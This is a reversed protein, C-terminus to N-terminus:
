ANMCEDFYTNIFHFSFFFSFFFLSNIDISMIGNPPFSADTRGDVWRTMMKQNSDSQQKPTKPFPFLAKENMQIIQGWGMGRRGNGLVNEFKIPTEVWM